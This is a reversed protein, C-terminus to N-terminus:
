PHFPFESIVVPKGAMYEVLQTLHLSELHYNVHRLPMSIMNAITEFRKKILLDWSIVKDKCGNRSSVTLGEDTRHVVRLILDQIIMYKMARMM